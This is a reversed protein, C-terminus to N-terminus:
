LKEPDRRPPKADRSISVLGAVTGGAISGLVIGALVGVVINLTKDPRVPALGPTARDVIEMKPAPTASNDNSRLHTSCSDAIANAIRAAENKDESFVKIDILRTNPEPFVELRAKLLSLTNTANLSQGANYKRGWAVNLDLKDIAPGLVADSQIAKCETTKDADVSVRATSAYSEPLIFTIVTSIICTLLFIVTFVRAFIM